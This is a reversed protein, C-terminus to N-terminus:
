GGGSLAQVLESTVERRFSQGATTMDWASYIKGIMDRLAPDLLAREYVGADDMEWLLTLDARLGGAGSYAKVSRTGPVSEVAPVMEEIIFRWSELVEADSLSDKLNFTRTYLTSM